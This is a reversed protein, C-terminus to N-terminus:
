SCAAWAARRSGAPDEVVKSDLDFVMTPRSPPAYKGWAPLTSGNPDGHRAFATWADAMQTALHQMAETPEGIFFNAGPATLNDLAFPIEVAHAAGLSGGFATSARHFEYVWVDAHASQAEAMEIAPMRFVADTGIAEYLDAPSADPAADRYVRVLVDPDSGTFRQVRRALRADDLRDRRPDMSTFLRMEDRNTGTLLNIGAAAGARLAAMPQEPLTVGDVVPQFPLGRAIGFDNSITDQAEILSPFPITELADIQDPGLDLLDLLRTTVATAQDRDHVNAVAGSQAIARHFSGQSAPLALHTGVSMGGASEGFITVNDPDGGFTEINDHVWRLAAAQDLLGVNGSGAFREGGLDALHLFGLAGLRYNLTVVVVDRSALNSGDYWATSGTGSVFAGGHIWVMVPRRGADPAPTWVNLTLCDAESQPPGDQMGLLTEVGGTPQPATAFKGTADRVGTWSEAPAPPRFRRAGVPPAAFPIGKYRYTGRKHDGRVHGHTTEVTLLDPDSTM